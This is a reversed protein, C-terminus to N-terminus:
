RWQISTLNLDNVLCAAYNKNIFAKKVSLLKFSCYECAVSWFSENGFLSCLLCLLTSDLRLSMTLHGTQIKSTLSETMVAPSKGNYFLKFALIRTVVMSVEKAFEAALSTNFWIFICWKRNLLHGKLSLVLHWLTDDGEPAIFFVFWAMHWIVKTSRFSSTEGKDTLSIARKHKWSRIKVKRFNHISSTQRRTSSTREINSQLFRMRVTQPVTNTYRPYIQKWTSNLARRGWGTM